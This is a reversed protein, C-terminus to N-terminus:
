GATAVVTAAVMAAWVEWGEAAVEWSRRNLSIPLGALQSRTRHRHTPYIAPVWRSDDVAAVRAAEGVAAAEWGVGWGVAAAWGAVGMVGMAVGAVRVVGEAMVWGMAVGAVMVGAAAVTEAVEM